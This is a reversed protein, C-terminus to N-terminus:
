YDVKLSFSIPDGTPLIIQGIQAAVEEPYFLNHYGCNTCKVNFRIRDRIMHTYTEKTPLQIRLFPWGCKKCSVLIAGDSIINDIQSLARTKNSLRITEAELEDKEKQLADRTRKLQPIQLDLPGKEKLFEELREPSIGMRILTKKLAAINQVEEVDFELSEFEGIFKAYASLKTLGIKKLQRKAALTRNIESELSELKRNNDKLTNKLQLNEKKLHKLRAEQMTIKSGKKEFDKVIELYGKEIKRELKMLKTASEVIEEPEQGKEAFFEEALRIYSELDDSSVGIRNLRDTLKAGRAADYVSLNTKKLLINLDRLDELEPERMKAEEKIQNITALGIGFRNSIRRYTDGALWRKLVDERVREPIKRM